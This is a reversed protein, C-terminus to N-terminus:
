EQRARRVSQRLRSRSALAAVLGSGLLALSAPEPVTAADTTTLVMDDFPPHNFTQAAANFAEIRVRAIGPGTLNFAAAPPGPFQSPMAISDLLNDLADYAFANWAPLSTHPAVTAVTFELQTLATAFFLDYSENTNTQGPLGYFVNDGSVPTVVSGVVDCIAPTAGGSVTAFTVGFSALYGTADACTDAALAIADFDLTVSAAQARQPLAGILLTLATV